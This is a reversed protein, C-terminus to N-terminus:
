GLDKAPLARPYHMTLSSVALQPPADAVRGGDSEWQELPNLFRLSVTVPERREQPRAKAEHVIQM